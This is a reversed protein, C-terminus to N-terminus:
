MMIMRKVASMNASAVLGSKRLQRKRVQAKSTFKHSAYAHDRQIKGSGTVRFRKKAARSSKMKPM